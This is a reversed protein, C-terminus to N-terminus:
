IAGGPKEWNDVPKNRPNRTDRKMSRQKRHDAAHAQLEVRSKIPIVLSPSLGTTERKKFKIYFDHESGALGRRCNVHLYASEVQGQEFMALAIRRWEVDFEATRKQKMNEIKEQLTEFNRYQVYDNKLFDLAARILLSSGPYPTKTMKTM